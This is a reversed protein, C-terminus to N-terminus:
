LASQHSGGRARIMALLDSLSQADSRSSTDLTADARAYLPGRSDLIARLDEMAQRSAAMPRMDGQAAVRGMHEEPAAKLWIVYCTSLLLDFTAPETVLSGGTAIVARENGQVVHQLCEYELKRFYAQGHAAFIESLEIGSASEIERDLEIFPMGLAAAAKAGLTTKGAGRLGVLAIRDRSKITARGFRKALWGRAERLEAESLRQLEGVAVELEVSPEPADAVLDPVAIGMAEAIQRLVLLSANGAGRELEALYRESVGSAESLVKRSM